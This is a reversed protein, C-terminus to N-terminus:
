RTQGAGSPHNSGHVQTHCNMCNRLLLSSSGGMPPAGTGSLATSPHFQALHCQQCLFPTRQTLLADHVSGHPQHCSACNETAPPHEWLFPGRKEAHCTYCTDNLTSRALDADGPGGHPNHCDTCAVVGQLVPHASRRHLEARTDLHCATCNDMQRSRDLAPDSATHVTHCATCSVEARAHASHPWHLSGVGGHCSVCSQNQPVAPADPGFAIGPSPRTGDARVGLHDASAGHCSECSNGGGHVPPVAAHPGAHVVDRHCMTCAATDPGAWRPEDSQPPRGSAIALGGFVVAIAFPIRM